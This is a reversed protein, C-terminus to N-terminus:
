SGRPVYGYAKALRVPDAGLFYALRLRWMKLITRLIGQSEWRRGSTVACERLCLPASVAKLARSYAIDEMLPIDPFGGTQLFVDRRIFIAQDGTAIGTLRSRFNMFWAIVALMSHSGDIAVDFRGWLRGSAVLGRVIFEDAGDPLQTDAHLFLLVEGRARAAGANMQSARGRPATLVEDALAQALAATGGCSGGDVVIVEHGRRRLPSLAGLLSQIQSAENLTPVIVSLLFSRKEPDLLVQAAEEVAGGPM